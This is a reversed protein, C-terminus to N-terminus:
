GALAAIVVDPVNSIIIDVGAAALTRVDDPDDVTWVSVLLGAARAADIGAGGAALAARVDPNLWPHHHDVAIRAATDVEQGHTLWGTTVHPALERALDVAALDFSSVILEADHAVLMDIADRMVSGDRDADVEWPLCKVEANVLLGRCADLAEELTPVSPQADRVEAYTRAGLAGLGAIEADHHVMLVGDASRRVDLEVGDAGLERARSFAAVTNEPAVASAGRHGLVLPRRRM